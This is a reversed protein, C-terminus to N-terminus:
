GNGALYLLFLSTKLTKKGKKLFFIEKPCPVATVTTTQPLSSSASAATANSITSKAALYRFSPFIAKKLAANEPRCCLTRTTWVESHFSANAVTKSSAPIV